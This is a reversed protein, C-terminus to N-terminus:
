DLSLYIGVLIQSYRIVLFMTAILSLAVPLIGISGNATLYDSVQKNEEELNSREKTSTAKIETGTDEVQTNRNLKRKRFFDIAEKKYGHYLGIIVSTLLIGVVVIYDFVGVKSEQKM